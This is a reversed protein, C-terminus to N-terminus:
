EADYAEVEIPHQYRELLAEAEDLEDDTLERVWQPAADGHSVSHQEAAWTARKLIESAARVRDGAKVEPNGMIDALVHLASRAIHDLDIRLRALNTAHMEALAAEFAPSTRWQYLLETSIGLAGATERYTAGGGLLAIARGQEASLGGLGRRRM